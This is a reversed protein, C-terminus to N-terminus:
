EHSVLIGYQAQVTGISPSIFRAESTANDIVSGYVYTDPASTEIVVSFDDGRTIVPFLTQISSHTLSNPGLTIRAVSINRGAVRQLALTFTADHDGLNVLGVNTRFADSFSLGDLHRFPYTANGYAIPIPEPRTVNTGQIGYVNASVRVSRKGMTQVILPSLAEDIGFGEAIVDRFVQTAGAPLTFAIAPQDPSTPLRLAVFMEERTDNHLEVSTRWRVDNAGVVSGVIPVLVSVSPPTQASATAALLAAALIARVMNM